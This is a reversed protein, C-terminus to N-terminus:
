FIGLVTIEGNFTIWAGTEPDFMPQLGALSLNTLALRRYKFIVFPADDLVTELGADGPGRHELVDIM